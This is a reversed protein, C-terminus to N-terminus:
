ISLYSSFIVKYGVFFSEFEKASQTGNYAKPESVKVKLPGNEARSTNSVTLGVKKQLDGINDKLLETLAAIDEIVKNLKDLFENM